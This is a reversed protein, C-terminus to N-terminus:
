KEVNGEIVCHWPKHTFMRSYISSQCYLLGAGENRLMEKLSVTGRNTLSNPFCLSSCLLFVDMEDPTVTVFAMEGLHSVPVNLLPAM